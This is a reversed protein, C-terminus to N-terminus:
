PLTIAVMLFFVVPVLALAAFTLAVLGFTKVALVLVTVLIVLLYFVVNVDKSIARSVGGVVPTAHWIRGAVLSSKELSSSLSM